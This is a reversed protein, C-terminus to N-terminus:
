KSRAFKGFYLLAGLWYAIAAEARTRYLGLHISKRRVMIGACWRPVQAHKWVGKFGSTNNVNAGRNAGNRSAGARRLNCRRNDLGNTNRHDVFKTGTIFQHMYILKRNAKLRTRAYWLKGRRDAHWKLRRVIAYDSDSVLATKGQTLPVQKM